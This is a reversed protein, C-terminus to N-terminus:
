DALTVARGELEGPSEGLDDRADLVEAIDPLIRDMIKSTHFLDRCTYRVRREVEEHGQSVTSFAIPISLETKYLDAIDYVFSLMKGTHIFGIAPSYGATLIAAHCIGYLCANSCSLARNLPDAYDWEDQDYLRGQWDVNFERALRAYTARVRAGEMGRVQQIELPDPLASPFRKQYMRRVVMLRAAPDCFLAAQRLLRQSSHTGGTSHGYLRVGQEGCWAVLCNHEAMAKMAAQTVTTGPGLLVV